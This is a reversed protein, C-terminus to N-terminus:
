SAIYKEKKIEGRNNKDVLCVHVSTRNVESPETSVANIIGLIEEDIEFEFGSGNGCGDRDM